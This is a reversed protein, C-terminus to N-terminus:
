LFDLENSFVFCDDNIFLINKLFDHKHFSDTFFSDNWSSQKEKKLDVIYNSYCNNYDKEHRAYVISFLEM